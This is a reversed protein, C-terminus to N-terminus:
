HAFAATAFYGRSWSLPRGPQFLRQDTHRQDGPLRALLQRRQRPEPEPNLGLAGISPITTDMVSWQTAVCLVMQGTACGTMLCSVAAAPRQIAYELYRYERRLDIGRKTM